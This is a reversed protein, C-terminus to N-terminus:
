GGKQVIMGVSTTAYGDFLLKLHPEQRYPPLDIYKDVPRNGQSWDFAEVFHGKARLRHALSELDSRRFIVTPGSDMTETDSTLNFETTHVAWGGPKLTELSNEIFNLGAAIDGLHELACASWCFDFGGLEEDIANMDAPRFSVRAEFAANECVGVRRLTEKGAAHQDTEIWGTGVAMDGALDTAVITCGEAAFLASLPESGVGFGLGRRGDALLGREWLAQVIYGFEWQKRHYTPVERLRAMWYLFVPDEMSEQTCLQSKLRPRKAVSPEVVPRNALVGEWSGDPPFTLQRALVDHSRRLVSVEFQVRRLEGLLIHQLARHEAAMRDMQESMTTLAELRDLQAIGHRLRGLGSRPKDPLSSVVNRREANFVM